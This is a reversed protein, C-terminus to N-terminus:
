TFSHINERFENNYKYKFNNSDRLQSYNIYYYYNDNSNEVSMSHTSLGYSGREITFNSNTKKKFFPINNLHITGGVSGSGFITSNGGYSIGLNNFGNSPLLKLDTLGSASSNIPIGNWINTHSFSTGRFSPTNLAGYSKVYITTNEELLKDFSNSYSFNSSNRELLDYRIGISHKLEKSEFLEVEELMVSDSVSQSILLTPFGLLFIINNFSNNM